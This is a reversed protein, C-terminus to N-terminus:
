RDRQWAGSAVVDQVLERLVKATERAALSLPRQKTTGLTVTRPIGPNTIRSASLQRAHVEAFVAQYPLVTYVGGGAVIEKVLTLSNAEMVVDLTVRRRRAIQDMLLRLGSPHAPLVLPLRNLRSFDVRTQACPADGRRGILYSHSEDLREQLPDLRKGYRHLLGIDVQGDGLWEDIDGSFGEFVRLRIGPYLERIRRFLLAVLPQATSSVVGVRVDGSPVHSTALIDDSLQEAELLLARVRPLIQDGLATLSVGRGTRNFLRGGCEKELTGIHVSIAPQQMDLAIAARTLSGLEAVRVFTKWKQLVM